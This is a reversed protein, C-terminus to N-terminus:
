INYTATGVLAADRKVEVREQIVDKPFIMNAMMTDKGSNKVNWVVLSALSVIMNSLDDKPWDSAASSYSNQNCQMTKTNPGQIMIAMKFIKIM